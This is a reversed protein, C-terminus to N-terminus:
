RCNIVLYGYTIVLLTPNAGVPVLTLELPGGIKELIFEDGPEYLFSSYDTKNEIIVKPCSVNKLNDILDKPDCLSTLAAVM